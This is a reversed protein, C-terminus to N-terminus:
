NTLDDLTDCRKVERFIDKISLSIDRATYNDYVLVKKNLKELKQEWLSFLM